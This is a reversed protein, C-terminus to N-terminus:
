AALCARPRRDRWDRPRNGAHRRRHATYERHVRGRRSADDGGMDGRGRRRAAVRADNTDRLYRRDLGDLLQVHPPAAASLPVHPRLRGKASCRSAVALAPTLARVCPSHGPAFTTMRRSPACFGYKHPDCSITTVGEIRFDCPHPPAFGAREMFPLLFGGLCCDLHLGIGHDLALASLAPIDDITGHCYQPASGVLCITNADILHSVQAIDVEQSGHSATGASRLEIGFYHAAKNFSAHATTCAVLNPRTIGKEARAWDRYSKIAMLISETGGTTFAGCADVPARYMGLVMAIVESEMQRTAPHLMSHLPNTFAFMGYISGIFEMYPLDGHYVAGTTKGPLWHHIDAHQRSRMLSILAGESEGTRPLVATKVSLERQVDSQLDRRLKDMEKDLYKRVYPVRKVLPACQGLVWDLAGRPGRARYMWMRRLLGLLQSACYLQLALRITGYADANQLATNVVLRLTAEIGRSRRRVVSTSMALAARPSRRAHDDIARRSNARLRCPDPFQSLPQRHWRSSAM